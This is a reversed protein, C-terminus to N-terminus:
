VAVGTKLEDVVHEGHVALSDDGEALRHHRGALFELPIAARAGIGDVVFLKGQHGTRAAPADERANFGPRWTPLTYNVLVQIQGFGRRANAGRTRV